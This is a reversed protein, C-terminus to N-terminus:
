DHEFCRCGACHYDAARVGAPDKKTVKWLELNEPRNDDRRGNRHHVREHAELDRGLTIEMVYRHELRWTGEIKIRMYGSGAVARTGNEKVRHEVHNKNRSSCSRSCFRQKVRELEQGCRECTGRPKLRGKDSCTPSCTTQRIFGPKPTFVIGCVRCPRTRALERARYHCDKSCYLGATNAKQQFATGCLVCDKWGGRRGCDACYRQRNSNPTFQLGCTKCPWNRPPQPRM